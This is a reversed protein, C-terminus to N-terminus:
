NGLDKKAEGVFEKENENGPSQFDSEVNNIWEQDLFCDRKQVRGRDWDINPVAEESAEKTNRKPNCYALYRKHPIVM